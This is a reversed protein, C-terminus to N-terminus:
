KTPLKGVPIMDAQAAGNADELSVVLWGLMGRRAYYRSSDVSLPIKVKAGPVLPAFDGNSVAPHFPNFTALRAGQSPDNGTTMLDFGFVQPDNDAVYFSAAWYRLKQTGTPSLGIESALTPLLITSGDMPASALYADIITNTHANIIVSGMIGPQPLIGPVNLDVGVVAYDAIGDNNLDIDIDFENEAATSWRGYTNVAFVLCRDTPAASSTCVGPADSQVGAARLDIGALGENEDKLGWAYVDAIGNHLGANKVNISSNRMVGVSKYPGKSAPETQVSSTGRPVVMWPVDLAYVGTAPVTPTASIVGAVDLLPAYIQGFPDFSIVPGHFPAVDPLAAADSTSLTLTVAVTQESHAAVTMSAPSIGVVLGLDPGNFTNAFDYTIASGGTNRLSFTRTATYATTGSSPMRVQSYGFSLSSLGGGTYIFAVSDVALRPQVVGSGSQRVDYPTVLTADATNQIVAKIARADWTPHAEKVLAAVGAVAPTAMSTGSLLKGQDVTAGDASFVNVGPAAVDPKLANTVRSPGSSTFPAPQQYTPDAVAGVHLTTAMGDGLRLTAEASPDTSIMPITSAPDPVPNISIGSVNNVLVVGAAGAAQANARKDSFACTGRVITVLDGASITSFDSALCGDRLNNSGDVLVRMTGSVPLTSGYMNWGGVDTNPTPFDVIVGEALNPAGNMAAVSIARAAVAPSGTVYASAGENGAAAVVTVGALAANNSTVADLSNPNGMPSGLSMSIIDAGDRVAREIADSVVNTPGDCGFVRYALISAEPAVGPAIRFTHSALTTADYPGAYTHGNSLVGMGAATGAVHTGHQVDGANPNKCDLPDPDPHPVQASPNTSDPNYNDGVLDYGGVVKATPFTGPEIKWPKNANFAAQGAGGFDLHDYNIGTDLIAIKVGAGTFGTQGWTTPAGIYTDTNSNDLYEAPVSYIHTVQPLRAIAQIRGAEVRVRFGNFTDTFTSQISAGLARLKPAITAQRQALSSRISARQADSYTQGADIAAGVYASVPKGQLEIGVNLIVHPNQQSPLKDLQIKKGALSVRQFQRSTQGAAVTVSPLLAATLLGAMGVALLLRRKM